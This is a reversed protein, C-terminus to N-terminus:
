AQLHDKSQYDLCPHLSGKATSSLFIGYTLRKPNLVNLRRYSLHSPNSVYWDPDITRRRLDHRHHWLLGGTIALITGGVVVVKAVNGFRRM